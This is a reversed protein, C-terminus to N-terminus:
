EELGQGVATRLWVDFDQLVIDSPVAPSDPSLACGDFLHAPRVYRQFRGVECRKTADIAIVPFEIIEEKGELDLVLLYRRRPPTIMPSQVNVTAVEGQAGM